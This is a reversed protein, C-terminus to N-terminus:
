LQFALNIKQYFGDSLAIMICDFGYTYIFYLIKQTFVRYHNRINNDLVGSIHLLILSQKCIESCKQEVYEMGFKNSCLNYLFLIVLFLHIFISCNQNITFDQKSFKPPKIISLIIKKYLDIFYAETSFEGHIDHLFRM